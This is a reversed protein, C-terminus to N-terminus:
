KKPTQSPDESAPSAQPSEKPIFFENVIYQQIIGVMNNTIWYVAIGANVTYTIYAFFIPMIYLFSNQMQDNGSATSPSTMKTQLFTTAGSIVALIIGVVGGKSTLPIFGLFNSPSSHMLKVVELKPDTLLAYFAMFIPIQILMPLCSSFPNVKEKQYLEMTRRNLEEPKDKYKDQIEKLKPQIKKMKDMSQFQKIFSPFLIFRILATLIIIAWGWDNTFAHIQILIWSLPKIIFDFNM